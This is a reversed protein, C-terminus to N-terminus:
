KEGHYGICGKKSAGHFKSTNKEDPTFSAMPFPDYNM